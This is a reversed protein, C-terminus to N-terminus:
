EHWAEDAEKIIRCRKFGTEFESDGETPEPGKSPNEKKAIIIM